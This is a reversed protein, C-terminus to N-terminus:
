VIPMIIKFESGEGEKRDVKLERGHGKAITQIVSKYPNCSKVSNIKM